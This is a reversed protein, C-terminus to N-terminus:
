ALQPRTSAFKGDIFEVIRHLAKRAEPLMAFLMWDHPMDHWVECECEGGQARIRAAVRLSDDLLIETSGVQFLMPPLGSLDAFLPSAIPDNQAVDGLYAQAIFNREDSPLSPDAWSNGRRSQGSYTLDTVPSLLVAAVPLPLGEDRIRLLSSLTMGGGASDGILVISSASTGTKLLYRYAEVCDDLGVPFKYEPALRYHVLVVRAHATRALRAAMLRHAQTPAMMFGGGPFFLITRSVSAGKIAMVEAFTNDLEMRIVDVDDALAPIFRDIASRPIEINKQPIEFEDASGAIRKVTARLALNVLHAQWSSATRDPRHSVDFKRFKTDLASAFPSVAERVTEHMTDFVQYSMANTEDFSSRSWNLANSCFQSPSRSGVLASAGELNAKFVRMWAFRLAAVTSRSGSVVAAASDVFAAASVNAYRAAPTGIERVQNIYIDFLTQFGEEIEAGFLPDGLASDSQEIQRWDAKDLKEEAINFLQLEEFQFHKLLTDGYHHLRRVLAIGGAHPRELLHVLMALIDTGEQRLRAHDKDTEEVRRRVSADRKGLMEILFDERAHHQNDIFNVMYRFVGHAMEIDLPSLRAVGELQETLLRILRSARLHDNRLAVVPHPQAAVSSTM